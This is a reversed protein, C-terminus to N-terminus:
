ARSSIEEDQMVLGYSFSFEREGGRCRAHEPHPAAELGTTGYLSFESSSTLAVSSEVVEEHVARYVADDKGWKDPIRSIRHVGTLALEWFVRAM